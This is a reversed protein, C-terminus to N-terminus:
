DGVRRRLVKGGLGGTFKGDMVSHIGNVMVHVIGSPYQRPQAYTALDRIKERSFVVLDASMGPKVYGRDSLGLREAPKGTMKNVAQELTLSHTDRVFHGLVRPFSGYVRPHPTGGLLGDTCIMGYPHCIGETVGAESMSFYIVGMDGQEEEMLAFTLEEPSIGRDQAIDTMRRGVIEKRNSHASSIIINEWGNLHVPNDWGKGSMTPKKPSHWEQIIAERVEPQRLRKLTADMGGELVWPPLLISFMTSGATYPYIDFSVDHGKSKWDELKHLAKSMKHWNEKGSAKFHSIHLPIGAEESISFLEDISELLLTSGNRMHVVLFGGYEAVRHYMKVMEERSFFTCPMYVMGLSVGWAGAQMSEDVVKEMAQLELPTAERDELGMVVMRVNGSPLLPLENCGMPHKELQCLYDDLSRWSWSVDPNGDLGALYARWSAITSPDSSLPAPGIGDQALLESTIGQMLKPLLEPEAMAAMDSHSHTDIFGPCIVLGSIDFEKKGKEPIIGVAAIQEGKIAVDAKYAAQGTGDIVLGNRFIVDYM